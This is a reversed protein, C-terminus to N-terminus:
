NATPNLRNWVTKTSSSTNEITCSLIIFISKYSSLKWGASTQLTTLPNNGLFGTVYMIFSKSWRVLEAVAAM